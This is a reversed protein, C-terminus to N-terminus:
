QPNEQQELSSTWGKVEENVIDVLSIIRCKRIGIDEEESSSGKIEENIIDVHRKRSCNRIKIDEM